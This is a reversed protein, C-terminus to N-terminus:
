TSFDRAHERRYFSGGCTDAKDQQPYAVSEDESGGDYAPSSSSNGTGTGTGTWVEPGPMPYEKMGGWVSFNFSPDNQKYGGPFKITPGPTGSGGGTVKIQACEYYFEAEGAHAGHVGIHESRVLYEGDPLDRPVTFEIRDKDWTCWADSKIDKATDCIGEEHVKFWDGDGEYQNAAGPAKSMYVLGPGPHQITAGVGLKMALKSGATVEATGTQGAFTFSGKNCRFDPMDPTMDDRTNIWKTPNYKAPRTNSRVYQNPTTEVGDLILTDFFYHASVLQLPTILATAFLSLRM